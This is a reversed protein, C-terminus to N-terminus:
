ALFYLRLAQSLFKLGSMAHVNEKEKSLIKTDNAVEKKYIKNLFYSFFFLVFCIISFLFGSLKVKESDFTCPLNSVYLLRVQFDQKLSTGDPDM